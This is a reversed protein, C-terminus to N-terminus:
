RRFTVGNGPSNSGHIKPHCNLCSRAYFRDGVTEGKIRQRGDFLTSPHRSANHCRQCLYPQPATLLKGHISGHPEHCKGCNEMVPPHEFLKPGRKETHCTYCLENVTRAKINSKGQGGHSNHCSTCAQKGERVPHHSQKQMDGKQKPHCKGCLELESDTILQNKSNGHVKHCSSCSVGNRHHGTSKFGSKDREHCALCQANQQTAPFISKDGFAVVSTVSGKKNEDGKEVHVSGAGHCSQCGKQANPTRSDNLAWHRTGVLNKEQEEHCEICAEKDVFTAKPLVVNPQTFYSQQSCAVMMLPIGLIIAGLSWKSMGWRM